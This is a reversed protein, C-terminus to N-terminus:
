LEKELWPDICHQILFTGVAEKMSTEQYAKLHTNYVGIVTKNKLVIFKNPYQKILQEQNELYFRFDQDLM